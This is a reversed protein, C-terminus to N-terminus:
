DARPMDSNVSAGLTVRASRPVDAATQVAYSIRHKGIRDRRQRSLSRAAPSPKTDIRRHGIRRTSPM